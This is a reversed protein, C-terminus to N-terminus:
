KIAKIIKDTIDITNSYWLLDKNTSSFVATLSAKSAASKIASYLKKNFEDTDALKAQLSKLETEKVKRFEIIYKKLDNINKQFTNYQQNNEEEKAKIKDAEMQRLQNLYENLKNEYENKFDNMERIASSEKYFTEYIKNIDVIGITSITYSYLNLYILNFLIFMLIKKM